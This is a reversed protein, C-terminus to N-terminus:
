AGVRLSTKPTAGPGPRTMSVFKPKSPLEILLQVASHYSQPDGVLDPEAVVYRRLVDGARETRNALTLKANPAPGPIFLTESPAYKFTRNAAADYMPTGM